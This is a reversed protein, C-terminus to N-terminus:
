ETSASPVRGVIMKALAPPLEVGRELAVARDTDIGPDVTVDIVFHGGLVPEIADAHM